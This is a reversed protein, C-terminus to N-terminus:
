MRVCQFFESELSTIDEINSMSQRRSEQFKVVDIISSVILIEESFTKFHDRCQQYRLGGKELERKLEKLVKDNKSYEELKNSMAKSESKMSKIANEREELLSELRGINQRNEFLKEESLQLKMKIQTYEQQIKSM